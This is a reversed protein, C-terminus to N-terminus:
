PAVGNDVVRATFSDAQTLNAVLEVIPFGGPGISTVLQDVLCADQANPVRDFAYEVWKQAYHHQATPSAAILAMLEEPTSMARLEGDIRVEVNTDIPAGSDAELNQPAGLADYGELLFGLPNIFEHHCGSCAAADTMATVRKRITDLEASPEPLPTQSAGPPPAGPDVGLVDKLIFAGRIIPSTRAAEAFAALWGVRTLFGPRGALDVPSLEAGLGTTPLGYLPATDVNVFGRQSLLLDQFSGGAFVTEEFFREV